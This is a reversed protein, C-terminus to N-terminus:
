MTFDTPEEGHATTGGTNDSAISHVAMKALGQQLAAVLGDAHKVQAQQDAAAPEVPKLRAARARLQAQLLLEDSVKEDRSGSCIGITLCVAPTFQNKKSM